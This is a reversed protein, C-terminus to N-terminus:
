AGYQETDEAGRCILRTALGDDQRDMMGDTIM